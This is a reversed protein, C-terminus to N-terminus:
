EAAKKDDITRRKDIHWGLPMRQVGFHCNPTARGRAGFTVGFAEQDFLNENKEIM